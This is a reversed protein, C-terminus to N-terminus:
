ALELIRNGASILANGTGTLIYRIIPRKRTVAVTKKANELIRYREANDIANNMKEKAIDLIYYDNVTFMIIGKQQLHILSMKDTQKLIMIQISLQRVM